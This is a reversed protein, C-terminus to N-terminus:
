RSRVANSRASLPGNGVGGVARVRFRYRGRTLRMQLSRAGPRVVASHRRAAVSGNRRLKLATVRYGSVRAGNALPPQWRAVATARGGARGPSARRIRPQSPVTGIRYRQRTVPSVNDAQDIAVAKLTQSATIAIQRGRYLSGTSAGPAPQTGNGLTYRIQEGPGASLSVSQRRRYAGADPSASPRAPAVLDKMLSMTVGNLQTGDSTYTGAVTIRGDLAAMELASFRATWTQAGTAPTPTVDKTVLTGDGDRLRVSVATADLTMGSVTLGLGQNARNIIPSSVKTVAHGQTAPCGPGPSGTGESASTIENAAALHSVFFEGFNQAAEQQQENLGFFTATFAGGAGDYTVTSRVEDDDPNPTPALPRFRIPDNTRAEVQLEGVPPRVGNVRGRITFSSGTLVPGETVEINTVPVTDITGASDTVRVVDGPLIQPTFVDWCDDHNINVFGELNATTQASGVVVGNRTVEVLVDEESSFGDAEVIADDKLVVVAHAANVAADAPLMLGAAGVACSLAGLASARILRGGLSRHRHQGTGASASADLTPRNM